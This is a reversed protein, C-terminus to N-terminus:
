ANQRAADDVAEEQKKKTGGVAPLGTKEAARDCIFRTVYSEIQAAYRASPEPVEDGRFNKIKQREFVRAPIGLREGRQAVEAVWSNIDSELVLYSRRHLTQLLKIVPPWAAFKSVLSFIKRQGRDQAEQHFVCLGTYIRPHVCGDVSCLRANKSEYSM